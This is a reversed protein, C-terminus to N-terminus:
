AEKGWKKLLESLLLGVGVIIIALVMSVILASGLYIAGNM